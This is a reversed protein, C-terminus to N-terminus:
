ALPLITVCVGIELAPSPHDPCVKGSRPPDASTPFGLRQRRALLGPQSLHLHYLRSGIQEAYYRLVARLTSVNFNFALSEKPIL